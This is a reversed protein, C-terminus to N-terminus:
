EGDSVLLQFTHVDVNTIGISLHYVSNKDMGYYESIPSFTEKDAGELKKPTRGFQMNTWFYINDKYFGCGYYYYPSKDKDVLKGTQRFCSIAVTMLVICAILIKFIM